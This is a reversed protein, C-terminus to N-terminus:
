VKITFVLQQVYADDEYGEESGTLYCSVIRQDGKVGKKTELAERVAEALEIGDSYEQTYCVIEIQVTDAGPYGSKTPAQDLTARRYLIYPLVAKSIAVPFIKNTKSEVEKSSILMDRIVNGVSLSTKAM